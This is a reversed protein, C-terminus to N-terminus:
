QIAVDEKEDEADDMLADVISWLVDCLEDEDEIKEAIELARRVDVKALKWM